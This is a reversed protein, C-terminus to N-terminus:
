YYGHKDHFSKAKCLTFYRKYSYKLTLDIQTYPDKSQYYKSRMQGIGFHSGNRALYNYRSERMIISDMCKFENFNIVRSHLYLRLQDVSYGNAIAPLPIAMQLLVLMLLVLATIHSKDILKPTLHNEILPTLVETRQSHGRYVGIDFRNLIIRLTPRTM